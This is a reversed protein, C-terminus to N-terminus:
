RAQFLQSMFWCAWIAPALYFAFPIKREAAWVGHRRHQIAVFALAAVAAGLVALAFGQAGIWAGAAAGLKVDGLGLGDVGRMRFFAERLALLAGGCLAMQLLAQLFAGLADANEAWVALWAVALGAGALFANLPDPVRFHRFDEAAIMGTAAALIASAAIGFPGAGSRRRPRGGNSRRSRRGPEALTAGTAGDIRGMLEAM